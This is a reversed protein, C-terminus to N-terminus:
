EKRMVSVGEVRTGNGLVLRTPLWSVQDYNILFRVRIPTGQPVASPDSVASWGTTPTGNATGTSQSEIAFGTVAGSPIGTQALYQRTYAEVTASDASGQAAYRAGERSGNTALQGVMVLRGVEVIGLIFLLLVPLIVAFEVAAAGRRPRRTPATRM